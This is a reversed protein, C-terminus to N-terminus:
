IKCTSENSISTAQMSRFGEWVGADSLFSVALYGNILSGIVLGLLILRIEV